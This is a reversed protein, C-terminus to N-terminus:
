RLIRVGPTTATRAWSWNVFSVSARRKIRVRAGSMSLRWRMLSESVGYRLAADALSYGNRAMAM